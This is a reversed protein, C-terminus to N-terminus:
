YISKHRWTGLGTVYWTLRVVRVSVEESNKQNVFTHKNPVDTEVCAFGDGRTMNM